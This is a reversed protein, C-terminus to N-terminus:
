VALSSLNFTRRGQYSPRGVGEAAGVLAEAERPVVLSRVAINSKYTFTPPACVTFPM